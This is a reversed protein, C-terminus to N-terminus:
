KNFIWNYTTAIAKLYYIDSYAAYNECIRKIRVMKGATLEKPKKPNHHLSRITQEVLAQKLRIREVFKMLSLHPSDIL